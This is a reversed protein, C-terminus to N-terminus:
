MDILITWKGNRKGNERCIYGKEQLEITRRKITRESKGSLEAIGKQTITPEAKLINLLTMEELTLDLTGNQCKPSENKASQVSNGKRYDLHMYRNKLEHHKNLLLNEFFMELFETTEYVNNKWDNYNARVLANRFFWSNEAFARNSIQFGFTKLYKIIFVATTRTNGECFPHIQWIDSTFKAIHKVCKELSLGEYSFDKEQQFDYEM